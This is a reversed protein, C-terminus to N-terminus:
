GDKCEFYLFYQICFVQRSATSSANNLASWKQLVSNFIQYKYVYICFKPNKRQIM